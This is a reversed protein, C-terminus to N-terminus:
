RTANLELRTEGARARRQREALLARAAAIVARSRLLQHRCLLSRAHLAAARQRVLAASARPDISGLGAREPPSLWARPLSARRARQDAQVGGVM